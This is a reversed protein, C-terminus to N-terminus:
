SCSCSIDKFFFLQVYYWVRKIHYFLIKFTTRPFLSLFYFIPTETKSIAEYATVSCIFNAVSSVGELTCM